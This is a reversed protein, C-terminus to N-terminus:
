RRSYLAACVYVYIGQVSAERCVAFVFVSLLFAVGSLVRVGGLELKWGVM